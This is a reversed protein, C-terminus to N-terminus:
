KVAKRVAEPLAQNAWQPHAARAQELADRRSDAQRQAEVLRRVLEQNAAFYAAAREEAAALEVQTSHLENQSHALKTEAARRAQTQYREATFLATCLLLAVALATYAPRTTLTKILPYM